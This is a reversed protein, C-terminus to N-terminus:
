AWFICIIYWMFDFCFGTFMHILLRRKTIKRSSWRPLHIGANTGSFSKLGVASQRSGVAPMKKQLTERLNEETKRLREARAAFHTKTAMLGLLQRRTKKWKKQANEKEPNPSVGESRFKNNLRALLVFPNPPIQDPRLTPSVALFSQAPYPDPEPNPAIVRNIIM